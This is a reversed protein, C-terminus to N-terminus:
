CATVPASADGTTDYAVVRVCDDGDGTITAGPSWVTTAYSSAAGEVRFVRYFALYKGAAPTSATWSAHLSGGSRTLSLGTPASPTGPLFAGTTNWLTFPAFYADTGLTWPAVQSTFSFSTAGDVLAAVAQHNAAIDRVVASGGTFEYLDLNVWLATPRGSATIAARVAGFWAALTADLESRARPAGPIDGSGDQQAVVDLPAAVLVQQWFAQWTAPTVGAGPNFYPSTLVPYQNGTAHLHSTLAAFYATIASRAPEATYNTNVEAPLYWGTITAHHNWYRGWLDGALAETLAQDQALTTAITATPAFREAREDRYLGLWVQVGHAAARALLTGVVDVPTGDARTAQVTGPVTSPFYTRATTGVRDASAQLVVSTIGAETLDDLEQDWRATGWELVARPDLVTSAIRPAAAPAATAQPVALALLGSLLALLVLARARM